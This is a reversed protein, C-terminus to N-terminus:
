GSVPRMIMVRMEEHEAPLSSPTFSLKEEPEHEKVGVEHLFKSLPALEQELSQQGLAYHMPIVVRPEIQSMVASAGAPDITEGGGVPVFLVDVNGIEELQRKTLEHGLDGLHCFAVDEIHIVYVTNRGRESGKTADHFTSVGTILIGRIEYEGPGNIPFIDDRVPRVGDIYNHDAHQHSITVIHATPRGLELGISRDFPDCLVIGNRGKLRFCSHGLYHIDPM